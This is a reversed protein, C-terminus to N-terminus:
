SSVNATTSFWLSTFYRPLIYIIPEYMITLNAAKHMLQAIVDGLPLDRYSDVVTGCFPQVTFQPPPDLSWIPFWVLPMTGRLMACSGSLTRSCIALCTAYFLHPLDACPLTLNHPAHLYSVVIYSKLNERHPSHLIGDEPINHQTARTLVSTKSSCKAERILTVLVLLSPINATFLLRLVSIISANCEESVDARVLAVHRLM